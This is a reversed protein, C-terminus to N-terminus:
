WFCGEDTGCCSPVREDGIKVWLNWAYVQVESDSQKGCQASCHCQLFVESLTFLHQQHEDALEGAQEAAKM